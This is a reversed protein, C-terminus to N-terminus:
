IYCLSCLLMCLHLAFSLHLTRFSPESTLYRKATLWSKCRDRLHPHPGPQGLRACGEVNHHIEEVRTLDAIQPIGFIGVSNVVLHKYSKGRNRVSEVDNRRCALM